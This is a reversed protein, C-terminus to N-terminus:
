DVKGTSWEGKKKLDYTEQLFGEELILRIIRNRSANLDTRILPELHLKNAMKSDSAILNM